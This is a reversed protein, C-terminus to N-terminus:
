KSAREYNAAENLQALTIVTADYNQCAWLLFTSVDRLDQHETGGNHVKQIYDVCFIQHLGKENSAQYQMEFASRLANLSDLGGNEPRSDYIYLPLQEVDTLAQHVAKRLYDPWKELKGSEYANQIIEGNLRDVGLANGERKTELRHNYCYQAARMAVFDYFTIEQDNEFTFLSVAVENNVSQKRGDNKICLGLILNRLLTTKRGKQRGGIAIYRKTRAGGGLIYDIWAINTPTIRPEIGLRIR